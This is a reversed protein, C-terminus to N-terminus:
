EANWTWWDIVCHLEHKGPTLECSAVTPRGRAEQRLRALFAALRAAPMPAMDLEMRSSGLGPSRHSTQRPALRWTLREIQFEERLRALSGIWAIRDEAALFGSRELHSFTAAQAHDLALREPARQLSRRAAEARQEAHLEASKGAGRVELAFYFASSGLLFATLFLFLPLRVEMPLRLTM